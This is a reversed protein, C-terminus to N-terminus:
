LRFSKGSQLDVGWVCFGDRFPATVIGVEVGNGAIFRYGKQDRLDREKAQRAKKAKRPNSDNPDLLFSAASQVRLDADETLTVAKPDVGAMTIAFGQAEQASRFQMSM